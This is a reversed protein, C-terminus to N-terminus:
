IREDVNEAIQDAHVFKRLLIALRRRSSKLGPSFKRKQRTSHLLACGTLATSKKISRIILGAM